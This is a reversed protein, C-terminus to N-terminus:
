FTYRIKFAALDWQSFCTLNINPKYDIALAIPANAFKYEFGVTPDLGLAFESKGHNRGLQLAGINLGGGAYLNFGKALPVHYQYVASVMFGHHTINYAAQAEIASREGLFHKFGVGMDPGLNVGIATNYDQAHVTNVALLPLALAILAIIKKKMKFLKLPKTPTYLLFWAVLNPNKIYVSVFPKARLM